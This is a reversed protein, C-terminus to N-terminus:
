RQDLALNLQLVNIRQDGFIGLTPPLAHADILTQIASLPINRAAAIRNAQLLANALSIHPDLGSASTTVAESPILADSTLNNATRYNQVRAQLANILKQSTPGLNSAKSDAGHYDAASPRPHFYSPSTFNQGILTSGIIQGQKNHVLSGGAQRPFFLQGVGWMLTPYGVGLLLTLLCLAILSTKIAQFFTKM